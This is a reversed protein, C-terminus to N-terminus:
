HSVAFCATSCKEVLRFESTSCHRKERRQECLVVGLRERHDMGTGGLLSENM